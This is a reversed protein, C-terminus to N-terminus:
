LFPFCLLKVLSVKYFWGVLCWSMIVVTSNNIAPSAKSVLLFQILLPRLMCFDFVYLLVLYEVALPSPFLFIDGGKLFTELLEDKRTVESLRESQKEYIAMVRKEMSTSSM